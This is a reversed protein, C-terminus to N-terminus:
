NWKSHCMQLHSNVPFGLQNNGVVCGTSHLWKWGPTLTAYTISPESEIQLSPHAFSCLRVSQMPYDLGKTREMPCEATLARFAGYMPDCVLYDWQTKSLLPKPLRYKNSLALSSAVPDPYSAPKQKWDIAEGKDCMCQSFHQWGACCQRQWGHM